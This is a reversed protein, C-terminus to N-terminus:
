SSLKIESQIYILSFVYELYIYAYRKHIHVVVNYTDGVRVRRQVARSKSLWGVLRHKVDPVSENIVM